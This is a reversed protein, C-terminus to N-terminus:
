GLRQEPGRNKYNYILELLRTYAAIDPCHVLKSSLYALKDMMHKHNYGPSKIAKIVAILFYKRAHGSYFPKYDEIKTAILDAKRLEKIKFKGNKFDILQKGGSTTNGLLGLTITWEFKYRERFERVIMYDENGLDCYGSLFDDFSFNKQNSNFIQVEELGYNKIVMYYVPLGLSKAAEYRHQGDIIEHRGNVTIPSILYREKMSATIRKLHLPKIHRNGPLIKITDYDTTKM